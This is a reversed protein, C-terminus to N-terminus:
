VIWYYATQHFFIPQSIEKTPESTNVVQRDTKEKKVSPGNVHSINKHDYKMQCGGHEKVDPHEGVDHHGDSNNKELFFKM